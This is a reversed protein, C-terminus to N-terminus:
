KEGCLFEENGRCLGFVLKRATAQPSFGAKPEELFVTTGEIPGVALRGDALAVSIESNFDEPLDGEATLTESPYFRGGTKQAILSGKAADSLTFAVSAGTKKFEAVLAEALSPSDVAIFIRRYDFKLTYEGVRGGSPTLQRRYRPAGGSRHEEMKKELYNDAMAQFTTRM